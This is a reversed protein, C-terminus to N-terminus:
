RGQLICMARAVPSLSCQWMTRMTTISRLAIIPVTAASNVVAVTNLTTAGLRKQVSADVNFKVNLCNPSASPPLTFFNPLTVLGGGLNASGASLVQVGQIM